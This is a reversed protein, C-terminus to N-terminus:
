QDVGLRAVAARIAAKTAIRDNPDIGAFYEKTAM